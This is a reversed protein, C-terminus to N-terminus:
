KYNTCCFKDSSNHCGQNDHRGRAAGLDDCRLIQKRIRTCFFVFSKLNKTVKANEFYIITLCKNPNMVNRLQNNGVKLYIQLSCSSSCHRVYHKTAMIIIHVQDLKNSKKLPFQAFSGIFIMFTM